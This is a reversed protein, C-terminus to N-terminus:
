CADPVIVNRIGKFQCKSRIVLPESFSDTDLQLRTALLYFDRILVLAFVDLSNLRCHLRTM